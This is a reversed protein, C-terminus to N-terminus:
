ELAKRIQELFLTVLLMVIPIGFFCIVMKWENSHRYSSSGFEFIENPTIWYVLFGILFGGLTGGINLRYGRATQDAKWARGGILVFLICGGIFEVIALIGGFLGTM